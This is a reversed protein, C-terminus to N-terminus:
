LCCKKYKKGSGCPCYENRGIKDQKSGSVNNVSDFYEDSDHFCAWWSMSDAARKISGYNNTLRQHSYASSAIDIYNQMSIYGTDVIGFEFITQIKNDLDPNQPSLESIRAILAGMLFGCQKFIDNDLLTELYILVDNRDLKAEAVLGLLSKIATDRAYMYINPKEIVSKIGILNGDYLSTLINSYGETISDGILGEISDEPLELIKLAIPFAKVERFEALIFLAYIHGIYETELTRHNEYAYTLMELLKPIIEDRNAIAMEVFQKPYPKSFYTLEKIITEILSNNATITQSSQSM